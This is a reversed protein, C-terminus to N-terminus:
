INRNASIEWPFEQSGEELWRGNYKIMGDKRPYTIGNHRVYDDGYSLDGYAMDRAHQGEHALVQRELESGPPVSKDIFLSGDKNAEGLIGDDLDKRFIPTDKSNKFGRKESGLKFGM